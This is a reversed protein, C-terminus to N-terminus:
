HFRQRFLQWISSLGMLAFVINSYSGFIARTADVGSVALLGVQFGAAIILVLTPFDIIWVAAEGATGTFLTFYFNNLGPLPPENEIETVTKLRILGMRELMSYYRNYFRTDQLPQGVAVLFRNGRVIDPLMSGFAHWPVSPRTPSM